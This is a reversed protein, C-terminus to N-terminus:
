PSALTNHELTHVRDLETETKDFGLDRKGSSCYDLKDVAVAILSM